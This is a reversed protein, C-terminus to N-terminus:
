PNLRWIAFNLVSAFSVWALYLVMLLGAVRSQQWFLILTAAITFWLAVIVVFAALLLHFSFFVPTWLFNLMLQCWFAFLAGTRQPSRPLKWVFWAAVAMLGYLLTWVPGFIWNPPNFSPRTLAAYWTPIEHITFSSSIAAVGYCAVLFGVLALLPHRHPSHSALTPNVAMPLAGRM